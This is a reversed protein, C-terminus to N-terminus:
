GLILALYEETPRRLLTENVHFALVDDKVMARVGALRFRDSLGKAVTPALRIQYINSPAPTEILSGAKRTELVSVIERMVGHARRNREPFDVLAAGALLAPASGQYITGGFEHRLRRVEAIMAAEGALVAGFPADLFKYLSIYVTDFLAACARVDFEPPALLLRAGDLHLGIGRGRAWESIARAERLGVMQGELRRVPSELSIAGTRVPYPGKEAKEVLGQIEDLGPTARGAALPVLNIGSLRQIGDGEDCYVHSDAQVIARRNEGCLARIALHNALTGTPLFACAPKGLLDAVQRELAAVAGGNLYGDRDAVGSTLQALRAATRAPDPPPADGLLWVSRADIPPYAPAAAQAQALASGPAALGLAAVSKLLLRRHM